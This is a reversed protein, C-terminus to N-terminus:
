KQGCCDLWAIFLAHPLTLFGLLVVYAAIVDNGTPVVAGWYSLSYWALLVIGFGAAALDRHVRVWGMFDTRRASMRLMRGLHRQAHFTMFYVALALYLPASVFLLAILATEILSVRGSLHTRRASWLIALLHLILAFGFLPGAAARWNQVVITAGTLFRILDATESAGFSVIGAIVLTGRSLGCTLWALRQARIGTFDGTGWHFATLALFIWFFTWPAVQRVMVAVAVIAGYSVFFIPWRLGAHVKTWFLSPLFLDSAGHPMGLIVASALFCPVALVSALAPWGWSLVIVVGAISWPVAPNSTPVAASPAGFESHEVHPKAKASDRECLPATDHRVGLAIM